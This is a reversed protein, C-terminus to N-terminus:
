PTTVKLEFLVGGLFRGGFSTTGVLNGAQDFILPGSPKSGDFGNTFTHLVTEQGAANLKYVTGWGSGGWLTMGYLNGAADMLVDGAPNGGDPEGTFNYLVTQHGTPDLRYVVGYGTAGGYFTTGYLNGAADQIVGAEPIAGDSQGTFRYLVSFHGSADIKYVVGCGADPLDIGGPCQAYGAGGAAATGYLNGAVDQVVGAYPRGGDSGGSFAHLVTEHGTPDLKFVTGSGVGGDYTTGYFNGAPDRIVGAYPNAGDPNSQFSYLVTEHGAPDLRYIVGANAAGGNFTTGYVVGTPDIIPRGYPNAGDAGGTFPYLVSEHGAPDSKYVVGFGAVGAGPAAGYLDGAADRLVGTRPHTGDKGETFTYLAAFHGNSDVKYVVGADNNGYLNGAADRIVGGAPAAGDAGGTFRYLVTEQGAPNLMFVVGYGAQNYPSIIGGGLTTGYLNGASDRVVGAVPERGDAGCTFTYLVTQNGSPDLKYVVGCGAAGAYSATGYLNGESDRIVGGDPNGGDNGSTFNYLVTETGDAAVKFVVGCGLTCPGNGGFQTTGYLNGAADRILSGSPSNGDPGAFAHLVTEHGAADVEFVTGYGYDPDEADGGYFTAGYLNGAADRILGLPGNGDTGAVFSHLVTEHGQADLKYVVGYGGVGGNATGYLNGAEDRVVGTYPELGQDEGAFLHVVTVHGTADLKFVTGCGGAYTQSCLTGGGGGYEATGYLNGADDRFLSGSPATGKPSVAFSHLVTEVAPTQSQVPAGALLALASALRLVPVACCVRDPKNTEM